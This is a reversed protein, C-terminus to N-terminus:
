QRGERACEVSANVLFMGAQSMEEISMQGRLEMVRGEQNLMSAILFERGNGTLDDESKESLCQCMGPTNNSAELCAEVFDDSSAGSGSSSTETMNDAGGSNGDNSMSSSEDSTMDTDDEAPSNNCAALALAAIIAIPAFKNM